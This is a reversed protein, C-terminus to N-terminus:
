AIRSWWRAAAASWSSFAPASKKRFSKITAWKYTTRIEGTEAALGDDDYSLCVGGTRRRKRLAPLIVFILALLGTGIAVGVADSTMIGMGIGALGILAFLGAWIRTRTSGIRFSIVLSAAVLDSRSLEYPGIKQFGM